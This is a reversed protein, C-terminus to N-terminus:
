TELRALMRQPSAGLLSQFEDIMHSQDYYGNAVALDAWGYAWGQRAHALTNMARQIRCFRKAGIGLQHTFLRHLYRTSIGYDQALTGVSIGPKQQLVELSDKLIPHLTRWKITENLHRVLKDEMVQVAAGVDGSLVKNTMEERCEQAAAGWISELCVARDAIDQLPFPFFAFAGGPRFSFILTLLRFQRNIETFVTRPGVLILRANGKDQGALQDPKSLLHFLIHAKGDPFITFPLPERLNSRGIISRYNVFYARLAPRPAYQQNHGPVIFQM